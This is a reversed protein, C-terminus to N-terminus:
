KHRAIACAFGKDLGGKPSKRRTRRSGVQSASTWHLTPSNLINFIVRRDKKSPETANDISQMVAVSAASGM